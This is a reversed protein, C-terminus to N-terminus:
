RSCLGMWGRAAQVRGGVFKRAPGSPRLEIEDWLQGKVDTGDPLANYIDVYTKLTEHPRQRRSWILFAGAVFAALLTAGPAIWSNWGPDEM